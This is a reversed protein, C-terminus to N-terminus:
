LHAAPRSAGLRTIGVLVVAGFALAAIPTGLWAVDWLVDGLTAAAGPAGPAPEETSLWQTRASLTFIVSFQAVLAALATAALGKPARPWSARAILVAAALALVAAPIGVALLALATDRQSRWQPQIYLGSGAASGIVLLALVALVAWMAPLQRTGHAVAAVFTLSVIAVLLLALWLGTPDGEFVM